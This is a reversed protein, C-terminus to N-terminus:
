KAGEIRPAPRLEVPATAPDEKKKPQLTARVRTDPTNPSQGKTSQVTYYDARTDYSIYSGRVEDKGRTLRANEFLEIFERKSDYEVRLAEGDIWEDSGDRKERFTAPTGWATAHQFGQTDKRVNLKNSRLVFSGQTLVVRGEFIALQKEDDVKLTDSEVNIPKDRDAREAFVSGASLLAFVACGGAIWKPIKL